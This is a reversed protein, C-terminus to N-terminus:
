IGYRGRMANFNERIEETTLARDYVRVYGIRGNFNMTGGYFGRGILIGNGGNPTGTFSQSRVLQGNIFTDMTGSIVSTKQTVIIWKNFGSLATTTVATNWGTTTNLETAIGNSLIAFGWPANTETTRSSLGRQSQSVSFDGYVYMAVEATVESKIDNFYTNSITYYTATSNVNAPLFDAYGGTITLTASGSNTLTTPIKKNSMDTLTTGDISKVNSFDIAFALNSSVIQPNYYTGM